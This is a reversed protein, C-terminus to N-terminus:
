RFALRFDLRIAPSMANKQIKQEAILPDVWVGDDKSVSSM